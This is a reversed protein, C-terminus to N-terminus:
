TRSDSYGEATNSNAHGLASEKQAARLVETGDELGQSAVGPKGRRNSAIWSAAPVKGGTLRQIQFALELGPSKVGTALESM